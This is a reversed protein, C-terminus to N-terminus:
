LNDILVQWRLLSLMDIIYCCVSFGLGMTGVATADLCEASLYCIPM